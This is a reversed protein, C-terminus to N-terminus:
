RRDPADSEAMAAKIMERWETHCHKGEDRAWAKTMEESPVYDRIAALVATAISATTEKRFDSATELPGGYFEWYWAKSIVEHLTMNAKMTM